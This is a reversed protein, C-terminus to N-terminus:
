RGGGKKALAAAFGKGTRQCRCSYCYLGDHVHLLACDDAAGDAPTDICLGDPPRKGCKPCRFEADTPQYRTHKATCTM